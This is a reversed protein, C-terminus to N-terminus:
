REEGREKVSWEGIGCEWVVEDEGLVACEVRVLIWGELLLFCGNKMQGSM